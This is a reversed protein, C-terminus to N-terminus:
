AALPFPISTDPEPEISVLDPSPPEVVEQDTRLEPAIGITLEKVKM